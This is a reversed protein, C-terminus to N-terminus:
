SSAYMAVLFQQCVSTLARPVWFRYFGAEVQLGKAIHGLGSAARIVSVTIYFEFNGFCDTLFAELDKQRLRYTEFSDWIYPM